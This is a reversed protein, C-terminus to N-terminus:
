PIAVGALEAAYQRGPEFDLFVLGHSTRTVQFDTLAGLSVHPLGPWRVEAAALAQIIQLEATDCARGWDWRHLVAKASFLEEDYRYVLGFGPDAEVALCMNDRGLTALFSEIDWTPTTLRARDHLWRKAWYRAGTHDELKYFIVDPCLDNLQEGFPIPADAMSTVPILRKLAPLASVTRRYLGLTRYRTM